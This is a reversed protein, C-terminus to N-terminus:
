GKDVREEVKILCEKEKNRRKLLVNGIEMTFQDWSGSM